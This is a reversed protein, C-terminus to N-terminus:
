RVPRDAPPTIALRAGCNECAGPEDYGADDCAPCHWEADPDAAAADADREAGVKERLEELTDWLTHSGSGLYSHDDNLAMQLQAVWYAKARDDTGDPLQSAADSLEGVLSTMREYLDEFHELLDQLHSM